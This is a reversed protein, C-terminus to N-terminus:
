IIGLDPIDKKHEAEKKSGLSKPKLPPKIIVLMVARQFFLSDNPRVNLAELQTLDHSSGHTVSQWEVLQHSDWFNTVGSLEMLKKVEM